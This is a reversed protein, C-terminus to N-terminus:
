LQSKPDFADRLGDGLFNFAIITIFILFGPWLIWPAMTMVNVDQAISLMNGWSAQPEMIGLNLLSLASEGLIYGPVSLTAAVIVYSFTNPLIHRTIIRFRSAGVCRAGLVFNERSISLVMGRIIRALGAWGICSLAAVILIYVQISSINPPFSARIALLLYLSPVSQIIECFRMILNDTRGGIYGSFGGVLMGITTSIFVGIFGITLSVRGGYILRSLIGRGGADSGLFFLRAPDDVGIFHITTAFLGWFDYQDGSIFFRVPYRASTDEKYIKQYTVPDRSSKYAYVFPRHVKGEEDVIHITTPPAFQLRRNQSAYHYPALFGAFIAFFYLVGLIRGGLIAMKHHRFKEIALQFQSHGEEARAAIDEETQKKKFLTM